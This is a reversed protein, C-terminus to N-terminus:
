DQGVLRKAAERGKDRRERESRGVEELSSWTRLNGVPSKEFRRNLDWGEGITFNM